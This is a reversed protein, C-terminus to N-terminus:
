PCTAKKYTNGSTDVCMFLGGSGASTPIAALNLTHVLANGNGDITSGNSRWADGTFTAQSFDIGSFYTYAGVAAILAGGTNVGGNASLDTRGFQLGINSGHTADGGFVWIDADNTSGLASDAVAHTLTIIAKNTVSSGAPALIDFEHATMASIYTASPGLQVISWGGYYEGRPAGSIGGDGTLTKAFFQGGVYDQLPSSASSAATQIFQFSGMIRGGQAASGGFNLDQVDFPILYAGGGTNITANDSTVNIYSGEFGSAASTTGTFSETITLGYNLGVPPLIAVSPYNTVTVGGQFTWLGPNTINFDARSVGDATVLNITGTPAQALAAGAALLLMLAWIIYSAARARM